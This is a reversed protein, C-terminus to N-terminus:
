AVREPKEINGAPRLSTVLRTRRAARLAAPQGGSPAFVQYQLRVNRASFDAIGLREAAAEIRSPEFFLCNAADPTFGVYLRTAGVSVLYHAAARPLSSRSDLTLEQRGLRGRVQELIRDGKAVDKRLALAAWRYEFPSQGPAIRKAISDFQNAQDPDCLIEDLSSSHADHVLRWAIESAYAYQAMQDLPIQTRRSTDIATFGGKKRLNLLLRNWDAPGGPISLRRCNELYVENLAPDAIVRDASYGQHSAIFAEAVATAYERNAVAVQGLTANARV